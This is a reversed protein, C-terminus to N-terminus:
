AVRQETLAIRTVNDTGQVRTFAKHRNVAKIVSHARGTQSSLNLDACSLSKGHRSAGAWECQGVEAHL